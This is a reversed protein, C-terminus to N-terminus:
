RVAATDRPAFVFAALALLVAGTLYVGAALSIALSLNTRQAIYGIVIPATGGGGLWGVMNMFGAVTGRAEPRVVDFVSAFINADYLGKFLGWACLAVVLWGASQTQGCLVVFPAGCALAGAQVMMRGGPRRARLRDALWGGLPSGVLSALQVFVTATFGAMALSLHFKDYLFKPMWTLLVVAVFNSCLFAGMLLMATPTRWIERAFEGMSLKAPAAGGSTERKPEILFRRLALGLLVGLGGFVVFSWRWGYHQAILGAFFGGAITGMYVSTQHIGLARSRTEKGHYDSVLSMSAPFYFTEGLGEAARFFLLHGFNRSLATAMCIVSWAQLGGLIATKRRIRDVINGALPASLGYVWAFSSGLLGLEVPSLHMERELLPFVSFIAQRDAYNFFAIWWLMAVVQWKYQLKAM